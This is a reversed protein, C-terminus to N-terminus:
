NPRLLLLPTNGGHLVRDAVGGLIWHNIGSRGHTTMAVLDAQIKDALKIIEDAEYGTTVERFMAKTVIGKQELKLAVSKIYNKASIKHSEILNFQKASYIYPDPALMHLLTVEITFETALKEVYPIVAESEKSGDLPVLIKDLIDKQRVEAHTDKARILIVPRESSRVIKNAVSGMAWRSIGTRGHTSMIIIDTNTEKALGSVESAAFGTRVATVANIGKGLLKKAVKDLYDKAKITLIRMEKEIYSVHEYIEGDAKYVGYSQPVVQLLKVESNIKLAIEEAYPLAVEALESGDLPVLIKKYM